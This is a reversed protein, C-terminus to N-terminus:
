EGAGAICGEAGLGGVRRGYVQVWVDMGGRYMACEGGIHARGGGGDRVDVGMRGRGRQGAGRGAGEEGGEGGLGEERGEGEQRQRGAVGVDVWRERM